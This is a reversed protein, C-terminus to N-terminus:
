RSEVVCQFNTAEDISGSRKYRAVQPFPCLPRTRTTKGNELHAGIVKDPAIGKEVWDVIPTLWDVQGCGPGGGCHAMGPIPFFRYFNDTEKKGYRKLVAAYYDVSMLATAMPDAWGHYHIVKGGRKKLANLDSSTANVKEAINAFKQPDSDFDFDKYSWSPGPPPEFAMYRIYTEALKIGVSDGVITGDWGILKPTFEAGPLQGPFLLKGSSNRVGGYVKKLAAIQTTTFCDPADKDGACKPVDAAPDFNCRQPTSIIGDVLGDLSDCKGYVAKALMPLKKADIRGPGEQVAQANWIHRMLTGTHNLVPAGVVIGDFDDPYRQAEMLGQRGGTSCGTWYSHRPQEGYYFQIVKKALAATEHPALFGFDDVKRAWNPNRPSREAFSAGPEKSDDHGANTMATAFGSRLGTDMAAIRLVGASGGNGVMNFRSNWETPLVLAFGDEPWIVGRVDCHEPMEGKVPILTASEINVDSGLSASPIDSCKRIPRTEGWGLTTLGIVLVIPRM